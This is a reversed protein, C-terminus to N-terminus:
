WYSYLRLPTHKYGGVIDVTALGNKKSDIGSVYECKFHVAGDLWEMIKRSGKAAKKREYNTKKKKSKRATLQENGKVGELGCYLFRAHDNDIVLSGWPGVWENMSVNPILNRLATKLGLGLFIIWDHIIIFFIKCIM